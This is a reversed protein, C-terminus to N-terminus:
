ETEKNKDNNKGYKGGLIKMMDEETYQRNKYTTNLHKEKKYLEPMIFQRSETSILKNKVDDFKHLLEMDHKVKRREERIKKIQKVMNYCWLMSIKNDEIFHLLDQEKCDLESLKDVLTSNYSDIENLLEISENIKAMVDM